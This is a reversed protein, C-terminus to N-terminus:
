QFSFGSWSSRHVRLPLPSVGASRRISRIAHRPIPPFPFRPQADRRLLEKRQPMAHAQPEWAHVPPPPEAVLGRSERLQEPEGLPGAADAAPKLFHWQVDSRAERPAAHCESEPGAKEAPGWVLASEKRDGGATAPTQFVHRSERRVKAPVDGPASAIRHPISEWCAPGGWAAARPEETPSWRARLEWPRRYDEAAEQSVSDQPVAPRADSQEAADQDLRSVLVAVPLQQEPIAGARFASAGRSDRERGASRDHDSEDPGAL